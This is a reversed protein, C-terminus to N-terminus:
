KLRAITVSGTQKTNDPYRILYFYAGDPLPKGNSTGDWPSAYGTSSYVKQGQRNYIVIDCGDLLYANVINWAETSVDGHNDPSFLKPIKLVDGEPQFNAQIALDRNMTVTQSSSSGAIDGSWGTFTYGPAAVAEIPVVTGSIYTGSGTVSGGAAPVVTASLTFSTISFNATVTKNSSITVTTSSATGSADGSWGTFTYGASPIATLTVVSGADYTGAGTISGGDTPSAITTLTYKTTGSQSQFNATVTKNANMTITTSASTGSADGSWGTFIYGAAPTATLTATSGMVYEGAGSVTGGVSPTAITALTYKIAQFNATVSKNATMTVTTIANTGTADGSWGTFTYGAAPTATVAVATGSNYTGAGTVTGGAAPSAATSLTYTVPKTLLIATTSLSPVTLTLSNSNATVTNSKLANQTHSVFTETAPLSSLQLTKYTGNAVTFNNLNITVTRSAGMDRNVVIVTLSDSNENVSSYASVTNELSSTSSVSYKKANRGFLHLTEWMGISWNWPSFLEVGNNAFTGLHSAYIVSELSPNSSSMTGWESLGATIGHNAGFHETLWGDIRKFIYQKTLSNDWGGKSGKIGNSGPYDYTEDYYIRHGQLAEADNNYSPYNHIDFVDVLKVGTTKYEDGLRKIFYELWPYYRGNINISEGQWKYWFWEATGVPGCLKIGPYLAKAKKALEIYRDIFADASLQTPMAWDHTAFWIDTENDMSWYVFQNKNFGKGNAGFWHDLIEVSSDAPWVKSFLNMDGDVLAQGGGTTNVVGGGALNQHTGSWGQAQNYAWDDFNNNPNSAVRGLLQFAFMGQINPFNDNIKQALADWDTGYVNNYWDPHITIRKRWNYGSANNGGNLRAFRLGADKYFQAPKDFGENRGYIYPSILRKNQVANVSITVNQALVTSTTFFLLAGILCMKM